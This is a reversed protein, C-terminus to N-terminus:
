DKAKRINYVKKSGYAGAYLLLMAIGSGIPASGGVPTGGGGSPSGTGSSGSGPGGPGEALVMLTPILIMVLLLVIKKIKM